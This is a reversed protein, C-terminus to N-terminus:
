KPQGTQGSSGGVKGQNKYFEAMNQHEPAALAPDPDKSKFNLSYMGYLLAGLAVVAGVIAAPGIQKKM